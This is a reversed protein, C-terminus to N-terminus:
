SLSTSNENALQKLVMEALAHQYYWIGNTQGMFSPEGGLEGTPIYGTGLGVAFLHPIPCNNIDLIECRNNVWHGSTKGMLHVPLGHPDLLPLMNFHYGMANIILDAEELEATLKKVQNNFLNLSVRPEPPYNGLGMMRMFLERGDMRLGSLRHIRQTAPCIDYENFDTYGAEMAEKQNTFFITPKTTGWIKIFDNPADPREQLLYWAASFASHNGGLIIIKSATQIQKQQVPSINGKLLVDSHITKKQYPPMSIEKGFLGSTNLNPSGGTAVIVRNAYLHNKKESLKIKFTGDSLQQIGEASTNMMLECGQTNALKKELLEGLKSLYGKLLHLPISKGQFSRILDIEPQLVDLDLEEWIKGGLCELFVDSLTDSNIQYSTITGSVLGATKEIVAFKKGWDAHYNGEKLSKLLLGTGAPGGGIIVTDFKNKLHSQNLWESIKLSANGDGYSYKINTSGSIHHEFFHVVEQKNITVVMPYNKEMPETRETVERFVILPIGLHTVEETVGGSDTIVLLSSAYFQIFDAYPLHEIIKINGQTTVISKIKQYSNPHTIWVFELQPNKEGLETIIEALIQYNKEINERRHLTILVQNRQHAKKSTPPLTMLSDIITNGTVMIKDPAVGEMVLNNKAQDTAAFHFSAVKSTMVRNFEEPYPTELNFSRLGAEIHILQIKSLFALNACALATNTDGQVLIYEIDKEIEIIDQLGSITQTLLRTLNNKYVPKPLFYNVKIKWFDIQEFLLEDHQSTCVTIIEHQVDSKVLEKIVPALKIIEPRTGFAILIKGPM